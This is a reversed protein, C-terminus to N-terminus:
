INNSDEKKEIKDLVCNYKGLFVPNEINYSYVNNDMDILYEIQDIKRLTTPIYDKDHEYENIKKKRGRRGKEKPKFSPDDIRGQPLNKEHSLCYDSGDRRSRTCQQGDFKRGMCRKEDSLVRRNRKKIGMNITLTKSELRYKDKIEDYNLNNDQAIKYLNKQYMEELTKLLRVDVLPQIDM